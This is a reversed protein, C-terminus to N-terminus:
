LYLTTNWIYVMTCYYINWSHRAYTCLVSMRVVWVGILKLIEIYWPIHWYLTFVTNQDTQLWINISYVMLIRAMGVLWQFFLCFLQMTLCPLYVCVILICLLFYPSTNKYPCLQFTSGILFMGTVVDHSLM